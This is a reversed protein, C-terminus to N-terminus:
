KTESIRDGADGFGLLIYGSENLCRACMSVRIDMDPSQAEAVKTISGPPNEMLLSYLEEVYYYCYSGVLLLNLVGDEALDTKAM